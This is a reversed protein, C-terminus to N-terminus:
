LYVADSLGAADDAAPQDGSNNRDNDQGDRDRRGPSDGTGNDASNQQGSQLSADGSTQSGGQSATVSQQILGREQGPPQITIHEVAYGQGKLAKIIQQQGDALHRYAEITEVKLEVLLQGGSLKLTADVSGLEAPNLRIKLTNVTNQAQDLSQASISEAGRLMASWSADGTVASVVAAASSQSASLGPFQRAEIVTVMNSSLSVPEAGGAPPQPTGGGGPTVADRSRAFGFLDLVRRAGGPADADGQQRGGSRDGDGRMHPGTADNASTGADSRGALVADATPRTPSDANASSRSMERQSAHGPMIGHVPAPPLDQLPNAARPLETVDRDAPTDTMKGPDGAEVAARMQPKGADPGGPDMDPPLPEARTGGPAPGPAPAAIEGDKLASKDMITVLPRESRPQPDARGAGADDATGTTKAPTGPPDSPANGRAELVAADFASGDASKSAGQQKPGTGKGLLAATDAAGKGPGSPANSNM